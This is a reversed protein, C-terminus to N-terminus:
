NSSGNLFQIPGNYRNTKDIPDPPKNPNNFLNVKGFTFLLVTGKGVNIVDKGAGVIVKGAGMTAMHALGRNRLNWDLRADVEEIRVKMIEQEQRMAGVQGQLQALEGQFENMMSNIRRLDDVTVTSSHNEVWKVLQFLESATEERTINKKPKFKGDPYGALIGYKQSLEQIAENSWDSPKVDSYALVSSTIALSSLLLLIFLQSARSSNIVNKM